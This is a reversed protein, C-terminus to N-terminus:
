IVIFPSVLITIDTLLACDTEKIFEEVEDGHTWVGFERQLVAVVRKGDRTPAPPPPPVKSEGTDGYLGATQTSPLSYNNVTLKALRAANSLGHQRSIDPVEDPESVLVTQSASGVSPTHPGQSSEDSDDESDPDDYRSAANLLSWLGTQGAATVGEERPDNIIQSWTSGDSSERTASRSPPSSM